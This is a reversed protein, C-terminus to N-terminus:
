IGTGIVSQKLKIHLIKAQKGSCNVLGGGGGGGRFNSFLFGSVLRDSLMVYYGTM